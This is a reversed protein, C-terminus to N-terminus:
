VYDRSSDDAIALTEFAFDEAHCQRALAYSLHFALKAARCERLLGRVVGLVSIKVGVVATRLLVINAGTACAAEDGGVARPTKLPSNFGSRLAGGGVKASAAGLTRHALTM